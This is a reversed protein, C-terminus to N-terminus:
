NRRNTPYDNVIDFVSFPKVLSLVRLIKADGIWIEDKGKVLGAVIREACAQASIPKRTGTHMPTDVSPPFVEVVKVRGRLCRRLSLTYSHLGAKSASYAPVRVLPVVGAPSNVNVIVPHSAKLLQPLFATTVELPGFLNASIDRRVAAVDLGAADLRYENLIAANNVLMSVKFGDRELRELLSKVSASDAVDCAGHWVGPLMVAAQRVVEERRGCIAVRHGKVSLARALALGIGTGGGTILVTHSGTAVM